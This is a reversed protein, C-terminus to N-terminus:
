PTIQLMERVIPRLGSFFFEVAIVMLILGMLRMMVKNGSDGLFRMIREAGILTAYTIGMVVLIVTILTGTYQLGSSDTALVIVTAIAGPGCIMPIGLPTIAIDNVYESVTEDPENVKTRSIRAQLMDFGILFFIVGGVIRLSNVSIGFFDFVAQGTFIIALLILTATIVAKRATAIKQPSTLTNTMTIYVPMVGLPNVVTFLSTFALVAFEFLADPM